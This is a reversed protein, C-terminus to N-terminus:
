DRISELQDKKMKTFSDPKGIYDKIAPIEDPTLEISQAFKELNFYSFKSDSVESCLFEIFDQQKDKDISNLSKNDM